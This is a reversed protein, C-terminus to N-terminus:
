RDGALRTSARGGSGLLHALIHATRKPEYVVPGNTEVTSRVQEDEVATKAAQWYEPPKLNESVAGAGGQLM